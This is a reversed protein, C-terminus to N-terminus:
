NRELKVECASVLQVVFGCCISTISDSVLSNSLECRASINPQQVPLASYMQISHHAGAPTVDCPCSYAHARRCIPVARSWVCRGRRPRGTCPRMSIHCKDRMAAAPSDAVSELSALYSDCRYRVSVFRVVSYECYYATTFLECSWM